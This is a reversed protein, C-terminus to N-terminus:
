CAPRAAWSTGKLFRDILNAIDNATKPRGSKAARQGGSGAPSHKHSPRMRQHPEFASYELWGDSLRLFTRSNPFGSDDAWFVFFGIARLVWALPLAGRAM